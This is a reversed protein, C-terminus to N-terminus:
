RGLEASPQAFGRVENDQRLIQPARLSEDSGTGPVASQPATGGRLPAEMRKLKELLEPSLAKRQEETDVAGNFFSQGKADEAIFWKGAKNQHLAASGKDDSVNVTTGGDTANEISRYLTTDLGLKWQRTTPELRKTYFFENVGADGVGASGIAVGGPSMGGGGRGPVSGGGSGSIGGKGPLDLTAGSGMVEGALGGKGGAADLILNRKYSLVSTGSQNEWPGPPVGWPNRDDLATVEKEVLPVNIQRTQGQHIVTLAVEEGSKHMRVLVALQHANILLQNDLKQLIDYQKLGAAEAPSKPEVFDIVMGVGPPLKMQERLAPTLPSGSVGLFAAKETGAQYWAINGVNVNTINTGGSGGILAQSQVPNVVTTSSSGVQATSGGPPGTQASLNATVSLLAITIARHLHRM